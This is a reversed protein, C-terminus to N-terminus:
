SARLLQCHKLNRWGNLQRLSDGVRCTMFDEYRNSVIFQLILRQFAECIYEPRKRADIEPLWHRDVVLIAALSSILPWLPEYVSHTLNDPADGHASGDFSFTRPGHFNGLLTTWTVPDIYVKPRGEPQSSWLGTSFSGFSLNWM